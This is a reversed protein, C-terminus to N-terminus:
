NRRLVSEYVKEMCRANQSWNYNELVFKRGAEGLSRRLDQDEILTSLASAGAQVDRSPVILGTVKDQVVEPLGGVGTVVVPVKCASAELVAVGFSESLSLACFVSFTTLLEPVRSHAVVGMFTVQREINLDAVLTELSERLSGDGAIVLRLQKREGYKKVLVAFSRILYEVGYPPELAKITGIVIVDDSNRQDVAPLFRTCDVGFPTVTIPRDCLRAAEIAMSQSTSCVHDAVALNKEVLKRHLWSRRPFDYVDSGWVSLVYPHFDCLRGLTGYSTAYHAHVIDPKFTALMSRVRPAFIFSNAKAPWKSNLVYSLPHVVPDDSKRFSVIKVDHNQLSFHKAWKIAHQSNADALYCIRM